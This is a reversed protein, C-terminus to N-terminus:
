GSIRLTDEWFPKKSIEVHNSKLVQSLRAYQDRYVVDSSAGIYLEPNQAGFLEEIKNLWLEYLEIANYYHLIRLHALQVKAVLEPHNYNNYHRQITHDTHAVLTNQIGEPINLIEATTNFSKRASEFSYVDLKRLHKNLNNWLNDDAKIDVRSDHRFIKLEDYNPKEILEQYPKNLDEYSLYSLNPHTQAVLRRLVYILGGIPPLNIWIRMMNGTKHRRHDLYYPNGRTLQSELSGDRQHTVFYDYNFDYAKATLSTIDKGYMGRMCFKLLWFGIAELDRVATPKASRHNSKIHIKEIALAIDSPKNTLLKKSHKDVRVFLDKTFKFERFTTSDALAKNYLARIHRLYNNHTDGQGGKSLISKRMLLINERTIDKFRVQDLGTHLKFGNLATLTNRHWQHSHGKCFDKRYAELSDLPGTSTLMQYATDFDIEGLQYLPKIKKIKNHYQTLQKNVSTAAPHDTAVIKNSKDWKSKEIYIATPVKIEKDKTRLRILLRHKGDRQKYSHFLFSINIMTGLISGNKQILM